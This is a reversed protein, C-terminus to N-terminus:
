SCLESERRADWLLTPSRELSAGMHEQSYTKAQRQRASKARVAALHKTCYRVSNPDLPETCSQCLGKALNENSWNQSRASKRARAVEPLLRPRVIWPSPMPADRLEGEGRQGERILRKAWEEPSEENEIAHKLSQRDQSKFWGAIAAQSQLDIMRDILAQMEKRVNALENLHTLQFNDLAADSCGLLFNLPLPLSKVLAHAKSM